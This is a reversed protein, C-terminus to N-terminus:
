NDPRNEGRDFAWKTLCFLLAACILIALALMQGEHGECPAVGPSRHACNWITAFLWPSGGILVLAAAACGCGSGRTLWMPRKPDRYSVM